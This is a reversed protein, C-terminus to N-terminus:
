IFVKGDDNADIEDCVLKKMDESTKVTRPSIMSCARMIHDIPLWADKDAYVDDYDQSSLYNAITDNDMNSLIEDDNFYSTVDDSDIVSCIEDTNFMQRFDDITFEDKIIDVIEEIISCDDLLAEKIKSYEKNKPFNGKLLEKIKSSLVENQYKYRM